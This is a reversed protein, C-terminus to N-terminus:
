DTRANTIFEREVQYKNSIIEYFDDLYGSVDKKSRQDLWEFNMVLNKINEKKSAFIELTRQIEEITRSFGRYLRETVSKIELAEHPVAYNANVLGCFDFDYPITYPFSISDGTPRMLKINHYPPVAWDTNGIMYQFISVLTMQQRDTREQHFAPKDVEKCNNRKAMDDVDEILFGFQTYPKIKERTDTFNIRLLRVRFSMETLQNYIKYVLYEKLVLKEDASRTGCGVVLKLKKLPALLKHTSDNKFDLKISPVFCEKRRYEGRATLTIPETIVTSDPFHLTVTAPQYQDAKKDAILKKLDTTLDMTILQDDKFFRSRDVPSQAVAIFGASLLLLLLHAKIKGM